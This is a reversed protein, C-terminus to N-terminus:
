DGKRIFHAYLFNQIAGSPTIHDVRLTEHQVFFDGFVKNVSTESYQCIELGSCKKPGDVSFTGLIFHGNPLLSDSLSKVYKRRDAESTLFHFVARDHWLYYNEVPKFETIDNVIWKIMNAKDALRNKTTQLATESIDLVTINKYGAELLYDVFFYAGGGVDIINANKPLELKNFFYLSTEPKEQYWGVKDIEVSNYLREWHEKREISM